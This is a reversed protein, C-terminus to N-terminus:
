TGATPMAEGKQDPLIILIILCVIGGVAVLGVWKSHGKGEAYNMAGWIFVPLSALVLLVGILVPVQAAGPLFLGALQLVFGIGM